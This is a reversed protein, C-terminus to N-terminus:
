KSNNSELVTRAIMVNLAKYNHITDCLAARPIIKLDASDCTFRRDAPVPNFEISFHHWLDRERNDCGRDTRNAGRDPLRAVGCM